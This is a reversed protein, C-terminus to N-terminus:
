KVVIVPIVQKETVTIPTIIEEKHTYFHVLKIKDSDFKIGKDQAQSFLLELIKELTKCNKFVSTFSIIIQFDDIYSM